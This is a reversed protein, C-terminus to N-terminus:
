WRSARRYYGNSGLARANNMVVGLVDAGVTELSRISQHLAMKRTKRADIVLLASDAHISLIAPDSVPGVPPGDLLVYDYRERVQRVLEAFRQSSLVETPNPPVPGVTLINLGEAPEDLADKLSCEQVLVTILGWSSGLGFVRHMTPHRLDCDIILVSKGVEALVVGLNTCTISKGERRGPSTIVVVRPPSDVSGYILNARLTRYAESAVNTPDLLTVLYPSFDRAADESRGNAK